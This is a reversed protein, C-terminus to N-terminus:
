FDEDRFGIAPAPMTVILQLACQSYNAIGGPPAPRRLSLDPSDLDVELRTFSPPPPTGM